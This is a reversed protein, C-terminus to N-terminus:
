FSSSSSSLTYILGNIPMAITFSLGVGTGNIIFTETNSYTISSNSISSIIILKANGNIDPNLEWKVSGAGSTFLTGSDGVKPTDPIENYAMTSDIAGPNISVEAFSNVGSNYYFISKNLSYTGNTMNVSLGYSVSVGTHSIGNGYSETTSGASNVNYTGNILKGNSDKGELSFYFTQPNNNGFFLSKFHRLDITTGLATTVPANATIPTSNQAGGGCGFILSLFIICLLYKM